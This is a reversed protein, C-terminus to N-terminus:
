DRYVIRGGSLQRLLSAPSKLTIFHRCHLRSGQEMIGLTASLTKPRRSGGDISRDVIWANEHLRGCFDEFFIM